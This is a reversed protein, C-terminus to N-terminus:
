IEENILELIYSAKIYQKKDSANQYMGELISRYSAGCICLISFMALAKKEIKNKM